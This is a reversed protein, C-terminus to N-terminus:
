FVHLCYYYIKNDIKQKRNKKYYYNGLKCQKNHNNIIFFIM